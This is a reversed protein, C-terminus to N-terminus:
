ETDKKAPFVVAKGKEASIEGVEVSGENLSYPLYCTVPAEEFDEIAVRIADTFSDSDTERLRVDSILATTRYEEEVACQRLGSYLLHIVQDSPPRQEETWGQVHRMEGRKTVVVAFPFFEGNGNLFHVATNIGEELVANM